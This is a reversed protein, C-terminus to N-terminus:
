LESKENYVTTIFAEKIGFQKRAKKLANLGTEYENFIAFVTPGSGSMMAGLAGNECLLSKIDEIVPYKAITVQELSNKMGASIKVLDGEKIASIVSETDPHIRNNETLSNFIEATSVSIRPKILVIFCKPFPHLRTLKEGIGEALACGRFVCFPVDAGITKGIDMLQQKTANLQLLRNVGVLTAAADSSGGALGASVPINKKLEIYLGDKFGYISRLKEAAMYMLNKEDMPLFKKNGVLETIGTDTKKIFINDCLNVTQMIMKLDHYGDERKGIVDLTINIKARATLSIHHM